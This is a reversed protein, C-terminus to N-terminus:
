SRPSEKAQRVVQVYRQHYGLNLPDLELAAECASVAKGLERNNEYAKVALYKVHASGAAGPREAVFAQRLKELEVVSLGAAICRAVGRFNGRNADHVARHVPVGISELASKIRALAAELRAKQAASLPRLRLTELERQAEHARARIEPFDSDNRVALMEYHDGNIRDRYAQLSVEAKADDATTPIAEPAREVPLGRVVRMVADRLESTLEVFQVGFGPQMGWAQAQESTVHRVVEAMLDLSHSPLSVKLRTFLQPLDKPTCLFMGGRSIDRCPFRGLAKGDLLTVVADFSAAHRPALPAEANARAPRAGPAVAPPAPLTPAARGPAASPPVAESSTGTAATVAICAELAEAFQRAEQFRDAPRKCMAKMIVDSLAKPVSPNVLHPAAPVQQLHAVILDAFGRQAFPLKATALLWAICGLSYIDARGDVPTSNAQEPSMFEPTGVILGAATQAKNFGQDLLKALGFDLVKVFRDNRGRRLLFINEPKLDRHIVGAKHAAQLADCVQVLIPVAIEAVVPKTLLYNLPRGELYEMVLYYKNPPVLNMDFINVINEHGIMNVARAEAYFRAVLDEEAALKEHLVKIAVRSGIVTHEGLYVSGMGGKGLPKLLRFSGFISGVLPDEIPESM